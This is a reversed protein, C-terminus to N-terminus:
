NVWDFPVESKTEPEFWGYEIGRFNNRLAEHTHRVGSDIIGAVAGNGDTTKWAEHAQIKHLHWLEGQDGKQHFIKRGTTVAPFTVLAEKHISKVEPFSALGKIVHQNAAKVFIQNSIWYSTFPISHSKLFQQVNTQSEFTHQELLKKLTTIKDARSLFSRNEIFKLVKENNGVFSLFINVDQENELASLLTPHIKSAHGYKFM